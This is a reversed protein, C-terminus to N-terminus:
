GLPATPKVPPLPPTDRGTAVIKGRMSEVATAPLPEPAAALQHHSRGFAIMLSGFILEVLGWYLNVNIGLSKAYIAPNSVLGFIGMILGLAVFLLGVPIRLDLDM